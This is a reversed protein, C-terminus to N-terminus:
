IALAVCSVSSFFTFVFCFLVITTGVSGVVMLGWKIGSWLGMGLWGGLVKSPSM